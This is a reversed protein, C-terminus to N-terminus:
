IIFSELLNKPTLFIESLFRQLRRYVSSLLCSSEIHQAIISLNTTGSTLIAFIMKVLITARADHLNLHTKIHKKLSKIENQYLM